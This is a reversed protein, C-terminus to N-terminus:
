SAGVSEARPLVFLGDAEITTVGEQRVWARTAAKRGELEVIEGGFETPVDLRTARRYTLTLRATRAPLDHACILIGLLHDLIAAAWGGHLGEPPGEHIAEPVMTTTARRGDVVVKLPFRLPNLWAMTVPEGARARAAWTADLPMRHVRDRRRVSLEATAQEVLATARALEAPAVDTTASAAMLDRTADVLRTLADLVVPDRPAPARQSILATM